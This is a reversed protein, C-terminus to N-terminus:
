RFRSQCCHPRPMIRRVLYAPCPWARASLILAKVRRIDQILIQNLVLTDPVSPTFIALEAPRLANRANADSGGSWPIVNQQLIQSTNSVIRSVQVTIDDPTTPGRSGDKGTTQESVSGFADVDVYAVGAVNQICSIIESVLVPQGLARADFGFVALLKSRVGSVVPEWLYDPLIKVKASLVLMRLERLTIRLPLDADGLTELADSLNRFLDSSPDIPADDVGAITM